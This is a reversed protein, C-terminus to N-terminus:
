SATASRPTGSLMLGCQMLTDAAGFGGAKTAFSVVRDGCMAAGFPVGAAVEGHLRLENAGLCQLVKRATEGGTLVVGDILGRAAAVAHALLELVTRPDGPTAPAVLCVNGSRLLAQRLNAANAQTATPELRVITGGGVRIQEVQATNAPHVSGVVTLVSRVRPLSQQATQGSIPHRRALAAALGPSGVWIVDSVDPFAAVIHDLDADTGADRIDIETGGLGSFLQHLDSCVVPTRPDKAYHSQEIPIGDVYQRGGRTVRGAAPFAPAVVVRRRGSGSILGALEAAPHGRLTSDITKYLLSHARHRHGTEAFRAFADSPQAYRTSLDIGFATGAPLMDIDNLLACADQRRDAWPSLADLASTLDDALALM